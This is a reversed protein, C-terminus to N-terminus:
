FLILGRDFLWSKFTAVPDMIAMISNSEQPQVQHDLQFKSCVLKDNVELLM